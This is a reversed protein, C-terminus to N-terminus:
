SQATKRGKKLAGKMLGAQKKGLPGYGGALAKRVKSRPIKQGAPTGTTRHFGGERFSLPKKGAKKIVVRRM